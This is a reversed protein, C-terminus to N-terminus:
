LMFVDQTKVDALDIGYIQLLDGEHEATQRRLDQFGDQMVNSARQVQNHFARMANIMRRLFAIEQRLMGNERTLEEIRVHNNVQANKTRRVEHPLLDTRATRGGAKNIIADLDSIEPPFGPSSM